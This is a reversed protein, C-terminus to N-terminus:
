FRASLQVEVQRPLGVSWAEVDNVNSLPKYQFNHFYTADGLNTGILSFEMPGNLQRLTLSANVLTYAPTVALPDNEFEPSRSNYYVDGGLRLGYASSLKWDYNFGLNLSVPSNGYHTGSLDQSANPSTPNM